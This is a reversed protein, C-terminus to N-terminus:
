AFLGLRAREGNAIMRHFERSTVLKNNNPEFGLSKWEPQRVLLDTIHYNLYFEEDAEVIEIREPDNEPDHFYFIPTTDRPICLIQIAIRVEDSDNHSTWHILGDDFIVADGAPVDLPELWSDVLEDKINAFYPPLTVAEVHPTIKHSGPVIHLTGNIATTNQLPCWITVTTDSMDRLVPWNQHIPFHGRHAQKIYFNANLIRFDALFQDVYPQFVGKVMNLVQRKYEKNQDIFSCHYTVRNMVDGTAEGVPNFGDTPRMTAMEHKIKQIMEASILPLQNYGTCRFNEQLAPDRFVQRRM